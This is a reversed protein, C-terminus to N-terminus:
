VRINVRPRVLPPPHIGLTKRLKRRTSLADAGSRKLLKKNMGRACKSDLETLLLRELWKQTFTYTREIKEVIFTFRTALM